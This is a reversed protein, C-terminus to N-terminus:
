PVDILVKGVTGAEVADHAAATEDLTFRHLPLTTLAGAGVASAVDAAAAALAAPPVFYLLVFRLVANNTMLARVAPISVEAGSDAYTVVAAGNAIVATDLELNHALDVEVVRDVGSPLATRIQDAADADRYSVVHHAGAARALEGKEPGSVTAVVTAGALVALEIAMHGVAGAGGAVLVGAGDIPGDAFLCRHATMAPVGLSAGLDFSADGLPVAHDSPM